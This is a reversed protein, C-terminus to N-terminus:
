AWMNRELIDTIPENLINGFSRRDNLEQLANLLDGDKTITVKDLLHISDNYIIGHRRTEALGECDIMECHKFVEPTNERNNTQPATQLKLYDDYLAQANGLPYLIIPRKTTTWKPDVTLWPNDQKIQSINDERDKSTAGLRTLEANHFFDGSVLMHIQVTEAAYGNVSKM